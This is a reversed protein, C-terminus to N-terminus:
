INQCSSGTIRQRRRGTVDRGQSTMVQEANARDQLLSGNKLVLARSGPNPADYKHPNNMLKQLQFTIWNLEHKEIVASPKLGGTQLNMCAISDSRILNSFSLV